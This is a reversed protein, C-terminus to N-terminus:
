KMAVRELYPADATFRSGTNELIRHIYRAPLGGFDIQDDIIGPQREVVAVQRQVHIKAKHPQHFIPSRAEGDKRRFLLSPQSAALANDVKTENAPHRNKGRWSM